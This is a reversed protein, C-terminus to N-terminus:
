RHHQQDGKDINIVRYLGTRDIKASAHLRGDNGPELIVQRDNPLQLAYGDGNAEVNLNWKVLSGEPLEIDLQDTEMEALGTYAPPEIGIAIGTIGSVGGATGLTIPAMLSAPLIRSALSGLRDTLLMLLLCSLFILVAPRYSIPAQWREVQALNKEYVAIARGRQLMQLSGLEAANRVLLQASEEFDPFRRNLHQLFNEVNVSRWKSSLWLQAFYVICLAVVQQLLATLPTGLWHGILVLVAIAALTYLLRQWLLRRRWGRLHDQIEARVESAVKGRQETSKM